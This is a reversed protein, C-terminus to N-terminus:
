YSRETREIRFEQTPTNRKRIIVVEFNQYQPNDLADLYVIVYKLNLEDKDNFFEPYKLRISINQPTPNKEFIPFNHTQIVKEEKLISVSVERAIARSNNLSVGVIFSNYASDPISAGTGMVNSPREKYTSSPELHWFPQAEILEKRRQTQIQEKTINLDDITAEALLRQQEVSNQLEKAQLNLAHTNQQLERGQQKYGLYLFLFALPAFVGALFDGLENSTLLVKKEPDIFIFALNYLFIVVGYFSAWFIWTKYFSWSKYAKLWFYFREFNSKLKRM